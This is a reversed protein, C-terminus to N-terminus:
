QPTIIITAGLFEVHFKKRDNCTVIWESDTEGQKSYYPNKCEHQLSVLAGLNISKKSNSLQKIQGAQLKSDAIASGAFVLVSLICVLLFVKRM